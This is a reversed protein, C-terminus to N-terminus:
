SCASEGEVALADMESMLREFLGLIESAQEKPSVGQFQEELGKARKDSARVVKRAAQAFRSAVILPYIDFRGMRSVLQDDSLKEEGEGSNALM